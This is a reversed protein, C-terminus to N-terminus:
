AAERGVSPLTGAYSEAARALELLASMPPTMTHRNIRGIREAASGLGVLAALVPAAQRACGTCVPAGTEVLVFRMGPPLATPKDCLACNGDCADPHHQLALHTMVQKPGKAPRSAGADSPRTTDRGIFIPWPGVSITQLRRVSGRGPVYGTPNLRGRLFHTGRLTTLPGPSPSAQSLQGRRLRFRGPLRRRHALSRRRGIVDGRRPARGPREDIELSVGHLDM